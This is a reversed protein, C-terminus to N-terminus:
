KKGKGMTSILRRFGGKKRNVMDLVAFVQEEQLFGSMRAVGRWPLNMGFMVNNALEKKGIAMLVDHVALILRYIWKGFGGSLYEGQSLTDNFGMPASRDWSAQPIPRGLLARFSEDPM